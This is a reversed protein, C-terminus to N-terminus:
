PVIGTVETLTAGIINLRVTFWFPVRVAVTSGVSAVFLVTVHDELLVDTAVTVDDPVDVARTIPLPAPEVDIVAYALPCVVVAVTVTAVGIVLMEREGLVKAIVTLVVDCVVTANVGEEEATGTVFQVLLLVATAVTFADPSTVATPLPVAVIVADTLLLDALRVTVTVVGTVPIVTEGDDTLIAFPVEVTTVAVTLGGVAEL